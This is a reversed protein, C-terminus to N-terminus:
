LETNWQFVVTWCCWYKWLAHWPKRFTKRCCGQWRWPLTYRFVQRFWKRNSSWWPLDPNGTWWWTGLLEACRPVMPITKWIVKPVIWRTCNFHVQQPFLCYKNPFLRFYVIFKYMGQEIVKFNKLTQHHDLYVSFCKNPLVKWHM